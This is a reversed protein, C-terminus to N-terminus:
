LTNLISITDNIKSIGIRNKIMKKLLNFQINDPDYESPLTVYSTNHNLSIKRFAKKNQKIADGDFLVVIEFPEKLSLLKIQNDSIKKGFTSVANYGYQSMRLVDTVGECVYITEGKKINDFGFLLQSHKSGPPNKYKNNQWEFIRRAVFSKKDGCIIPIIIRSAYKGKKCFGIGYKEILLLPYKRDDFCSPIIYKPIRLYDIMLEFEKPLDSNIHEAEKDEEYINKDEFINLVAEVKNKYGGTEVLLKAESKKIGELKILLSEISRVGYGCKLCGGRKRDVNFNFHDEGKGCEPCIMAIESNSSLQKSKHGGHNDILYKKIDIM